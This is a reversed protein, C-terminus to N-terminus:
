GQSIQRPVLAPLRRHRAGTGSGVRWGPNWSVIGYPGEGGVWVSMSMSRVRSVTMGKLPGSTPVIVCRDAPCKFIDPANGCYSWLPSKIIDVTPDWNSRNDRNFDLFGTVWAKGHQSFPMVHQSDDVYMIWALTLQRHNSLCQLGQAKQKAKGLAPLLMAALIAVIAIVVLLEILTFAEQKTNPTTDHTFGETSWPCAWQFRSGHYREGLLIPTARIM